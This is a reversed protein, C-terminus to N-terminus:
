IGAWTDILRDLPDHAGGTGHPHDYHLQAADRKGTTGNELQAILSDVEDIDRPSDTGHSLRDLLKRWDPQKDRSEADTSGNALRNLLADLDYQGGGNEVWDTPDPYDPDSNARAVKDLFARDFVIDDSFRVADIPAGNFHDRVTVSSEGDHGRIVLDNNVRSIDVETMDHGTLHIEDHRGPDNDVNHVTDHGSHRDFRYVDNGSGGDLSDNGSGSVLVDDGAGAHVADNGAGDMIVNSGANGEIRDNGAGANVFDEGDTLVIRDDGRHIVEHLASRSEQPLQASAQRVSVTLHQLLAANGPTLGQVADLFDGVTAANVSGAGFRQAIADALATDNIEWAGHQVRFQVLGYWERYHSQLSLQAHLLSKLDEYVQAVSRAYAGTPQEALAPQGWFAELVALDRADLAGRTGTVAEAKAWRRLIQETLTQRAAPDGEAVFAEVLARLDADANMARHLTDVNGFGAANPLRTVAEPLGASSGHHVDVAVSDVKDATFWLTQMLGGADKMAFAGEGRHEVGNADTWTSADYATALSFIGLSELTFLEDASAIGDSNKDQWVRLHAFAADQADVKGDGNDDLAALAEFGDAALEGSPLRTENGLLQSGNSVRTAGDALNVLLGDEPAIWSLKEAFGSNDMDFHVGRALPLTGIKGDGNLDLALPDLKLPPFPPLWPHPEGCATAGALGGLAMGGLTGLPGFLKGGVEGGICSGLSTCVHGNGGADNDNGSGNNGPNTPDEDNGHGPPNKGDNNANGDDDFRGDAGPPTRSNPNSPDFRGPKTKETHGDNVTAVWNYAGNDFDFSGDPNRDYKKTVTVTVGDRTTTTIQEGSSHNTYTTTSSEVNNGNFDYKGNKDSKYQTEVTTVTNDQNNKVTVNQVGTQSNQEVTTEIDKGDEGTMNTTITKNGNSDEQETTTSITAGNEGKVVTTKVGTKSDTTVIVEKVAHGNQDNTTTTEIIKNGETEKKFIIFSGDNHTTKQYFVESEGNFDYKGNHEKFQKHTEIRTKSFPDDKITVQIGSNKYSTITETVDAAVNGNLKHEKIEIKYEDETDTTTKVMRNGNNYNIREEEITKEKQTELDTEKTKTTIKDYISKGNKDTKIETTIEIHKAINETTNDDIISKIIRTNKDNINEPFNIMSKITTGNQNFTEIHVQPIDNDDYKISFHTSKEADHRISYTFNVHQKGNIEKSHITNVFEKWEKPSLDKGFYASIANKITTTAVVYELKSDEEYNLGYEGAETQSNPKFKGYGEGIKEALERRIAKGRDSNFNEPKFLDEGFENISSNVWAEALKFSDEHQNIFDPNGNERWIQYQTLVADGETSLKNQVYENVSYSTTNNIADAAEIRHLGLAHGVEHAVMDFSLYDHFNIINGSADVVKDQIGINIVGMTNNDKPWTYYTQYSKKDTEFRGGQEVFTNIMDVETKSLNLYQFQGKPFPIDKLQERAKNSLGEVQYINTAIQHTNVPKNQESM